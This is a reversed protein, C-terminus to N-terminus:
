YLQSAVNAIALFVLLVHKGSSTLQRYFFKVEDLVGHFYYGNGGKGGIFLNTGSTGVGNVLVAESIPKFVELIGNLYIFGGINHNYVATVHTWTNLEITFHSAIGELIKFPFSNWHVWMRM